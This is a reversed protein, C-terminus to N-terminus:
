KAPPLALPAASRLVTYDRTYQAYLYDVMLAGNGPNLITSVVISKVAKGTLTVPVRVFLGSTNLLAVSVRQAPKGDSYTVRLSLKGTATGTYIYRGILELTGGKKFKVYSPFSIRGQKLSKKLVGANIDAYGNLFADGGDWNKTTWGTSGFTFGVNNKIVNSSVAIAKVKYQSSPLLNVNSSTGVRILYTSGESMQIPSTALAVSGGTECEILIAANLVYVAVSTYPQTANDMSTYSSGYTTFLYSGDDPATFAYWVSNFMTCDANLATEMANDTAHHVDTQVLAVGTTLPLPFTYVDNIPVPTDQTYDINLLLNQAIGVDALIAYRSVMIVYSGAPLPASVVSIKNGPAIDDNCAAAAGLPIGGPANFVSVVTDYNSGQTSVYLVGGPHTIRAFVSHSGTAVVGVRCLHVPDNADLFVNGNRIDAYNGSSPLTSANLQLTLNPSLSQYSVTRTDTQAAAVSVSVLLLLLCVVSSIRKM